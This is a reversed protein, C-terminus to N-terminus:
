CLKKRLLLFQIKYFKNQQKFQLANKRLIYIIEEIIENAEDREITANRGVLYYDWEIHNRKEELERQKIKECREKVEETMREGGPVAM